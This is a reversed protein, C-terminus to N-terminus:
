FSARSLKSRMVAEEGKRGRLIVFSVLRLLYLNTCGLHFDASLPCYCFHLFISLCLFSCRSARSKSECVCISIVFVQQVSGMIGKVINGSNLFFTFTELYAGVLKSLLIWFSEQDTFYVSFRYFLSSKSM